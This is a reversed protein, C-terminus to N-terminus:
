AARKIWNLMTTYAIGMDRAVRARSEGERVRAVAAAVQEPSHRVQPNVRGPKALGWANGAARYAKIGDAQRERLMDREMEAVAALVAFLLRGVPTALDFSEKVFVLRVKRETMDEAWKHLQSARRGARSLSYMVILDHAGEDIAKMMAQWGPRNQNKGSFGKDTYVTCLEPKIGNGRLWNAVPERQSTVDQDNTSCRYYIATTM